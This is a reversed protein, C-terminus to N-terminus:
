LVTGYPKPNLVRQKFVFVFLLICVKDEVQERKAHKKSLLTFDGLPLVRTPFDTLLYSFQSNYVGYLICSYCSDIYMFM